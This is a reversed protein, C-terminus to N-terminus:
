IPRFSTLGLEELLQNPVSAGPAECEAIIQDKLERTYRRRKRSKEAEM